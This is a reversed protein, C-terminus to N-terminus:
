HGSSLDLQGVASLNEFAYAGRAQTARNATELQQAARDRGAALLAESQKEQAVIQLLIQESAAALRACQEREASSTWRRLQPDQGRYPQLQAEVQQLSEILRQKGGLIRMLLTFDGAEISELQRQGLEHLNKLFNHRAEVLQGLRTTDVSASAPSAHQHLQSM